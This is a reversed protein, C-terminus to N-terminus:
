SFLSQELCGLLSSFDANRQVSLILLWISRTKSIHIQLRTKLSPVGLLYGGVTSNGEESSPTEFHPHFSPSNRPISLAEWSSPHFSWLPVVLLLLHPLSTPLVNTINYTYLYFILSGAAKAWFLGLSLTSSRIVSRLCPPYM